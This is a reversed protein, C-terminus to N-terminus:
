THYLHVRLIHMTRLCVLVIPIHVICLCVCVVSACASCRFASPILIGQENFKLRLQGYNYQTTHM